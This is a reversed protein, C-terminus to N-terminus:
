RSFKDKGPEASFSPNSSKQAAWRPTGQSAVRGASMARHHIVYSIVVVLLIAAAAVIAVIAVVPGASVGSRALQSAAVVMATM